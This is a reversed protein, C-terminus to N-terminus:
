SEDDSDRPSKAAVCYAIPDFELPATLQKMLEPDLGNDSVIDIGSTEGADVENLLREWMPMLINGPAEKGSQAWLYRQQLFDSLCLVIKDLIKPQYPCGPDSHDLIHKIVAIVLERTPVKLDKFEPLCCTTRVSEHLSVISSRSNPLSSEATTGFVEAFHKNRRSKLLEV